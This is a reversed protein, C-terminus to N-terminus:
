SMRYTIYYAPLVAEKDFIIFERAGSNEVKSHKVGDAAGLAARILFMHRLGSGLDPTTYDNSKSFDEALYIGDGFASGHVMGVESGPRLGEQKIKDVVSKKTGHWFFKEQVQDNLPGCNQLTTSSTSSSSASKKGHNSRGFVGSVRKRWSGFSSGQQAKANNRCRRSCYEGPQGNWTPKGCGGQCFAPGPASAAPCAEYLPSSSRVHLSTTANPSIKPKTRGVEAAIQKKRAAYRAELKPNTLKEVSVIRINGYLAGTKYVATARALKQIEKGLSSHFDLVNARVGLFTTSPSWIQLVCLICLRLFM